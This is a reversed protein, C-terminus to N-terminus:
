FELGKVRFGSNMPPGEILHLGVNVLIVLSDWICKNCFVTVFYVTYKTCPSGTLPQLRVVVRVALTSFRM